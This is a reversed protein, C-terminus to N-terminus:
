VLVYSNEQEEQEDGDDTSPLQNRVFKGLFLRSGGCRLSVVGRFRAACVRTPTYTYIHTHTHTVACCIGHSSITWSESNCIHVRFRRSGRRRSNARFYKSIGRVVQFDFSAFRRITENILVARTVRHVPYGPVNLRKWGGAPTGVDPLCVGGPGDDSEGQGTNACVNQIRRAHARCGRVFTRQLLSVACLLRIPTHDYPFIGNNKAELSLRRRNKMKNREDGDRGSGRRRRGVGDSLM